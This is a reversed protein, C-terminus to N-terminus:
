RRVLAGLPGPVHELIEDPVARFLLLAVGYVILGVATQAVAPAPLALGAGLGLALAPVARIARAPDPRMARDVSALAVVYGVALVLEGLVTAVAAGTAGHASALVLVTTASVAMAILNAVIMPGHRHVSLLTFGWTAIVFSMALAVGQIQLVPVAEEFAPGAVVAIIPEAGLVCLLLAAGGLIATGEFLRQTAYSLRERNDRAARSLLPFATTVLIGPVAAVIIYVRFSAAFLGTEYASTVIQTLVLATYIYVQGAAVALAFVVTPKILAMWARLDFSPRLSIVGRVLVVTALVLAAQVPISIAFFGLLSAGFVALVAYGATLATQRLLDLATVTGIRLQTMLPIGLTGQMLGLVVSTGLLATGAVMVEDYGLALALAVALAVGVVTSALRLGLLVAMFDDRDAGKRQSFERIGLPAMGLDTIAQVLTVLALVTQFQGFEDPGLHRTVLAIGVVSLLTVAVFGAVRLSGGRVIRRGAEPTDLIDVGAHAPDSV